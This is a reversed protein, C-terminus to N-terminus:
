HKARIVGPNDDGDDPGNAGFSFVEFSGGDESVRYQYANGWPDHPLRDLYGGTKWDKPVPARVPKIILALLGQENSPYRGNDQKYLQLGKELDGLDQEATVIQPSHAHNVANILRPAAVIAIVALVAIAAILQFKSLGRQRQHLQSYHPRTTKSRM